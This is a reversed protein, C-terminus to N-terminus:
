IQCYDEVKQLLKQEEEEDDDEIKTTEKNYSSKEISSESSSDENLISGIKTKSKENGGVSSKKSLNGNGNSSSNTGNEKVETGRRKDTKNTNQNNNNNNNYISSSRNGKTIASTRRSQSSSTSNTQNLTQNKMSNDSSIRIYNRKTSATADESVGSSSPTPKDLTSTRRRKDQTENIEERVRKKATTPLNNISPNFKNSSLSHPRFSENNPISHIQPQIASVNSPDNSVDQVNDDGFQNSYSSNLCSQFRKSPHPTNLRKNVIVDLSSHNLSQPTFSNLNNNNNKNNNSNQVPTSPLVRLRSNLSSISSSRPSVPPSLRGTSLNTPLKFVNWRPDAMMYKALTPFLDDTLNKILLEIQNSDKPVFLPPREQVMTTTAPIEFRTKKRDGQTHPYEDPYSDDEERSQKSPTLGLFRFLGGFLTPNDESEQFNDNNNNNINNDEVESEDRKRKRQMMGREQQRKVVSKASKKKKKVLIPFRRLFQFSGELIFSIKKLVPM